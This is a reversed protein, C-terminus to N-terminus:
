YVRCAVDIIIIACNPLMGLHHCMFQGLFSPCGQPFVASSHMGFKQVFVGHTASKVTTNNGHVVHRKVIRSVYCYIVDDPALVSILITPECRKTQQERACTAIVLQKRYLRARISWLNARRAKHSGFPLWWFVVFLSIRCATVDSINRFRASRRSHIM